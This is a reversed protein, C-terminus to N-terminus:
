PTTGRAAVPLAVPLPAASVLSFSWTPRPAGTVSTVSVTSLEFSQMLAQQRLGGVWDNLAAPELTFGSVEFKGADLRIDALWVPAPITRAVMHLRDSHGQGPIWVGQQVAALIKETRAVAAQKEQLRQAQASDAPAANARSQAIAAQLAEVEKGRAAVSSQYTASTRQLSQLLAGSVVAGLVLFLGFLRVVTIATFRQRPPRFAVSCLNIQQAM